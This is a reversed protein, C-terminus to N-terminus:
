FSHRIGAGIINSKLDEAGVTGNTNTIASQQVSQTFAAYATTRKSLAHTYALTSANTNARLPAATTAAAILAATADGGVSKRGMSVVVTGAASVPVALSQSQATFKGNDASTTKNTHNQTTAFL